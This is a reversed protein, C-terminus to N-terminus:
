YAAIEPLLFYAVPLSGAFFTVFVSCWLLRSHLSVEVGPLLKFFDHFDFLIWGVVAM